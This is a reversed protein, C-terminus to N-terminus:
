KVARKYMKSLDKKYDDMSELGVAHRRADLGSVDEAPQMIFVGDKDSKFQTGYRQPKGQEVLLRDTLMAVHDLRANRTPLDAQMAALVQQQFAPDFDAHQAILFAATYGDEGVRDINPWGKAAVVRKLWAVNDHDTPLTSEFGKTAEGRAIAKQRVGQDAAGRKLLEARLPADMRAEHAANASEAKAISEPWGDAQRLKDLGPRDKHKLADIDIQGRRSESALVRFAEDTKGAASLCEMYFLAGGDPLGFTRYIAGLTNACQQYDHKEYASFAAEVSRMDTAKAPSHSAILLAAILLQGQKM